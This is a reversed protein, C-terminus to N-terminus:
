EVQNYSCNQLKDTYVRYIYQVTQAIFIKLLVSQRHYMVNLIIQKITNGM